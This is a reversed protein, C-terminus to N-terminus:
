RTRTEILPVKFSGGLIESRKSAIQDKVAQPIKAEFSNYGSIDVVGDKMGLNFVGGEYTNGMVKEVATLV